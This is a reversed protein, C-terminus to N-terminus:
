APAVELRALRNEHEGLKDEHERWMYVFSEVKPEISDLRKEVRVLKDKLDIVVTKLDYLSRETNDKFENFETKTVMREQLDLFSRHIMGAFKEFESSIVEQLYGKTVLDDSKNKQVTRKLMCWNYRAGKIRTFLACKM